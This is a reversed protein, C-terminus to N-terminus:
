VTKIYSQHIFTFGKYNFWENIPEESTIEAFAKPLKSIKFGFYKSHNFKIYPKKSKSTFKITM